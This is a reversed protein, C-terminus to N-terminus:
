EVPRTGGTANKEVTEIKVPNLKEAYRKLRANALAVPVGNTMPPMPLKANAKAVAVSPDVRRFTVVYETGDAHVFTATANEVDVIEKVYRGHWKLRGEETQEADLLAAEALQKQLALKAVADILRDSKLLAYNNTSALALVANTKTSVAGAIREAINSTVQAAIERWDIRQADAASTSMAVAAILAAAALKTRAM